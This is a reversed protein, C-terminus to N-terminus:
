RRYRRRRKPARRRSYTRKRSVPRRRRYSRAKFFPKKRYRISRRKAVNYVRRLSSVGRKTGAAVLARMVPRSLSAKTNGASHRYRQYGLAALGPMAGLAGVAQAAVSLGLSRAYQASTPEPM